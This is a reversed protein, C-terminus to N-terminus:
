IYTDCLSIADRLNFYAKQYQDGKGNFDYQWKCYLEAAKVILADEADSVAIRVSVGVRILDLMCADINSSIDTDLMTHFIRMSLKIKELM